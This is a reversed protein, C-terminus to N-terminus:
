EAAMFALAGRFMSLIRQREAPDNSVASNDWKEFTDPGFDQPRAVGEVELTKNRKGWCVEVTFRGTYQVEMGESSRVGQKHIWVYPAPLTFESGDAWQGMVEGNEFTFFAATLAPSSRTVGSPWLITRVHAYTRHNQDTAIELVTTEAEWWNPSSPDDPALDHIERENESQAKWFEFPRHRYAEVLRDLHPHFVAM